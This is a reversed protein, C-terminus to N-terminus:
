VLPKQSYIFEHLNGCKGLLGDQALHRLSLNPHRALDLERLIVYSLNNTFVAICALYTLLTPVFFQM